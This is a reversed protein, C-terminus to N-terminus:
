RMEFCRKVKAFDTVTSYVGGSPNLWGWKKVNSFETQSFYGVPIRKKM